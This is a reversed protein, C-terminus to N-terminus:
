GDVVRYWGSVGGGKQCVTNVDESFSASGDQCIAVWPSVACRDLFEPRSGEVPRARDWLAVCQEMSERVSRDRLEDLWDAHERSQCAAPFILALAVAIFIAHNM